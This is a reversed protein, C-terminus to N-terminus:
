KNDAECVWISLGGPTVFRHFQGSGSLVSGSGREEVDVGAARLRALLDSADPVVYNVHLVGTAGPVALSYRNAGELGQYEIVELGALDVISRGFISVDLGAGSPLGIMRVIVPGALLNDSVMDLGLVEGLFRKEAKADAVIYILPGVGAYGRENFLRPVDLVELLVVNIDDHSPLHIERFRTGNPATVDSYTETRFTYGAAKLQEFRQPLDDVYVDLNKPLLDYVQAGGRVSPGPTVYEVLHLMGAGSTDSRLLVQRAINVPAIGWLRGLDADAGARSAVVEFGLTDVWLALAAEIDGVGIAVSSWAQEAQDPPPYDVDVARVGVALCLLIACVGMLFIVQPKGM